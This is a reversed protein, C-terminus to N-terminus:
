GRRMSFGCTVCRVRSKPALVGVALIGGGSRKATFQQGACKPCRGGTAKTAKSFKKNTKKLLM